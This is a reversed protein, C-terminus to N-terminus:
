HMIVIKVLYFTLILSRVKYVPGFGGQGLKNHFSFFDTAALVCDLDFFPVNIDRKDDEGFHESNIFEKVRKESDYIRLALNEEDKRAKRDRRAKRIYLIAFAFRSILLVGGICGLIIFHLSSRRTKQSSTSLGVMEVPEYWSPATSDISQYFQIRGDFGMWFRSKSYNSPPSSNTLLEVVFQPIQGGSNWLVNSNNMIMIAFEQSNESSEQDLQFTYNGTSPDSSSAWSTLKMNPVMKMGPLFTDTPYDFSQWIVVSGGGTLILNGSDSLKLSYNLYGYLPISWHSIHDRVQLKGDATFCLEGTKDQLGNVWIAVWVVTSSWNRYWIGLYRLDSGNPSFFGLEFDGGASVLTDRSSDRLLVVDSTGNFNFTLTDGLSVANSVSLLVVAVDLFILLKTIQSAM